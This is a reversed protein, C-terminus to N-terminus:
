IRSTNPPQSTARGEHPFHPNRVTTRGPGIQRFSRMGHGTEVLQHNASQFILKGEAARDMAEQEDNLRVRYDAFSEDAKRQAAAM